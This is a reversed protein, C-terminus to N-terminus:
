WCRRSSKSVSRYSSSYVNDRLGGLALWCNVTCGQNDQLGFSRYFAAEPCRKKQAAVRRGMEGNDIRPIKLTAEKYKVLNNSHVVGVIFFEGIITLHSFLSLAPNLSNDAMLYVIFLSQLVAM